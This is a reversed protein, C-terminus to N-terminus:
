FCNSVVELLCFSSIAYLVFVDEPMTVEKRFLPMILNNMALWKMTIHKWWQPLFTNRFYSLFLCHAYLHRSFCCPLHLIESPHCLISLCELNLITRLTEQFPIGYGWSSAVIESYGMQICMPRFDCKCYSNLTLLTYAIILIQYFWFLLLWQYLFSHKVIYIFSFIM